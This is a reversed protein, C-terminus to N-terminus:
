SRNYAIGREYCFDIDIDPMSVREPNLFREFLLSYKIPDIDTIRLTYAVISGAASGRGPGVMINNEKAYNIFDWTILFYEIYGMKAIVDIEYNLRDIAEQTPEKYREKLGTFCLERLYSETTYGEPVDYRPLHYTNFDFEINCRQAIKVTNDLADIAYPFLEEMEERSKLYFEDSGFKMRSPDNLTKGMQICMLVDHIKADEKNVYHLDNTAVLPIGLEKSLKVLGANVEKQEPLHHDQIELYFNDEGFIDRYLLAFEKAKEYNRNLINNSVDGALCASLAIIGESHQRLEEIDVRPKYYFGEVYSTSVLKILNKYGTMNEALLVLHGYKKDYNPDKDRLGRSATYVECGIIPKIGAAKAKKYFDIAGFMCGHDTIAIAQMNLEKARDILKDLRSFGDLLSYETHVHLHIFDKNM